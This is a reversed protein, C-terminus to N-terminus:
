IKARDTTNLNKRLAESHCQPTYKEVNENNYRRKVVNPKLINKFLYFLTGICADFCQM